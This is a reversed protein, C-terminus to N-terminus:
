LFTPLPLCFVCAPHTFQRRSHTLHPCNKASTRWSWPAPWLVPSASALLYGETDGFRLRRLSGLREAPGFGSEPAQGPRSRGPPPGRGRRGPEQRSGPGGRAWRPSLDRLIQRCIGWGAPGRRTQADRRPTVPFPCRGLRGCRGHEPSDAPAPAELGCWLVQPPSLPPAPGPATM